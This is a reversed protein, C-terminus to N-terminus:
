YGEDDAIDNWSDKHPKNYKKYCLEDLKRKLKSVKDYNMGWYVLGGGAIGGALAYSVDTGWIYKSILLVIGAFFIYLGIRSNMQADSKDKEANRIPKNMNM